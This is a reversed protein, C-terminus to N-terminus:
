KYRQYGNKGRRKTQYLAIDSKKYLEEFTNGDTPAAAIGISTSLLIEKGEQTCVMQLAEHLGKALYEAYEESKVDRLLVVFEDGGLRGAIDGSRSRDGLVRAVRELVQDGYSHGLTDNIQKFNDVDILLFIQNGESTYASSLIEDIKLRTTAANYLGTLGDREARERLAIENRKRNDIDTIVFLVKSMDNIHIRYVVCSVWKTAGDYKMAFQIEISEKGQHYAKNLSKLSLEQEVYTRHEEAVQKIIDEHLFKQFSQNMEKGNLELLKDMGLDVKAYSLANAILTDQLELKRSTDAQEQKLKSIDEAVGVTDVLEQKEDYINHMSIRYWKMEGVGNCAVDAGCTNQTKITEFLQKFTDISGESIIDMAVFSEPVLPGTIREALFQSMDTKFQIERTDQDYEFVIHRSHEAATRMLGMNKIAEKHALVSERNAIKFRWVICLVVVILCTMTILTNETKIAFISHVSEEVKSDDVVFILQWDKIEVPMYCAHYDAGNNSYSFEGAQGKQFKEKIESLQTDRITVRGLDEWLNEGYETQADDKKLYNIYDGNANAIYIARNESDGKCGPMAEITKYNIVGLIVGRIEQKATRLPYAYVQVHQGKIIQSPMVDSLATNGQVASQFYGRDAINFKNGVNDYGDGNLDAVATYDFWNLNESFELMDRVAPDWINDYQELAKSTEQLSSVLEIILSKADILKHRTQERLSAKFNETEVRQVSERFSFFSLIIGFVALCFLVAIIRVAVANKKETKQKKSKKM